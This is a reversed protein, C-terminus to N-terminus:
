STTKRSSDTRMSYVVLIDNPDRIAFETRGYDFAEPGWEPKLDSPLSDIAPQIDDVQINIQGSSRPMPGVKCYMLSADGIDLILVEPDDADPVITDARFGLVDVYFALIDVLSEAYFVPVINKVNMLDNKKALEWCLESLSVSSTAM